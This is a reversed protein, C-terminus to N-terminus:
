HLAPTLAEFEFHGALPGHHHRARRHSGRVHCIFSDTVTFCIRLRESFTPLLCDYYFKYMLLKAFELIACGIAILKMQVVKARFNEVMALDENM